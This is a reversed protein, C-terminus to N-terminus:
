EKDQENEDIYRNELQYLFIETSIRKALRNGGGSEALFYSDVCFIPTGDGLVGMRVM